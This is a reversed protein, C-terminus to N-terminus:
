QQCAELQEQLADKEAQSPLECALAREFYEAAADNNGQMLQWKGLYSFTRFNAPDQRVLEQELAEDWGQGEQFFVAQQLQHILVKYRQAKPWEESHFFPQPPIALSDITLANPGALLSDLSFAQYGAQQEPWVSFWAMRKGPQFIASHHGIMQNIAKPNTYGIHKNGKGRPNSLVAAAEETGVPGQLLGERLLQYRYRSDSQQLNKLNEESNKLTQSQYHNTCFLSDQDPDLIANDDPGVEILASRGELASTVMIIESVFVERMACIRQAEEITSAYQLVERALLSIPMKAGTPMQSKAANITVCLGSENMGSVVGMMGAWSYSMYAFGSDPNNITLLRQKAFEPGMYFDFNRGVILASDSSYPGRLSFSSCGVVALDQLAHGIDHAAHYNLVRHYKSSIWDYKDSFSRSVGYVEQQYEQPVYQDMDRVFWAVFHKTLKQAIGSGLMQELRDVFIEEQDQILEKCLEGYALGRTYADGEIYVVWIGSQTKKLWNNGLTFHEPSIETRVLEKDLHPVTPPDISLTSVYVLLVVLLLATAVVLFLATKKLIKIMTCIAELLVSSGM